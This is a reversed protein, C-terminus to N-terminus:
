QKNNEKLMVGGSVTWAYTTSVHTALFVEGKRRSADYTLQGTNTATAIKGTITLLEKNEYIQPRRGSEGHQVAHRTVTAVMLMHKTRPANGRIIKFGQLSILLHWKVETDTLLQNDHCAFFVRCFPSFDAWSSRVLPSM